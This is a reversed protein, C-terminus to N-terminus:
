NEYVVLGIVNALIMLIGVFITLKHIFKLLWFVIAANIFHLISYFLVVRYSNGFVRHLIFGGGGMSVMTSVFALILITLAQEQRMLLLKLVPYKVRYTFLLVLYKVRYTSWQSNCFPQSTYLPAVKGAQFIQLYGHKQNKRIYFSSKLYGFCYGNTQLFKSGRNALMRGFDDRYSAFVLGLPVFENKKYAKPVEIIKLGENLADEIPHSM